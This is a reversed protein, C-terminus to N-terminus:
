HKRHSVFDMSWDIIHTLLDNSIFKHMLGNHDNLDFAKSFDVLLIGIINDM